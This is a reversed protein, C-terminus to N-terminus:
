PCTQNSQKLLFLAPLKFQSSLIQMVPLSCTYFMTNSDIRLSLIPPAVLCSTRRNAVKRYNEYVNCKFFLYNPLIKRESLIEVWKPLLSCTKHHGSVVACYSLIKKTQEFIFNITPHFYTASKAM